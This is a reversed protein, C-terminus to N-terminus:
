KLRLISLGVLAIVIIVCLVADVMSLDVFLNYAVISACAAGLISCLNWCWVPVKISRKEWQKQYKKPLIICALNMYINMLMTPIMVLSVISDLGMGTLIPFVSIIYFALYTLYPYGSKTTKKFVKPLWGDEAIKILPYRYMGIGGILSSAIACVGGGIVFFLYLGEPFIAEATVSINAGAVEDYSLVGSAVYAM